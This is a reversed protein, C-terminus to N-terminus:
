GDEFLLVYHLRRLFTGDVDQRKNTALIVVGRFSEIRQLLYSVDINAYRDHADKVDTRKGFLADAEDFFLMAGAEAAAQFVRDLNKETEGIYQSLLRALDFRYLPMGVDRAVRLAAMTKGTGRGSVFLARVGTSCWATGGRQSDHSQDHRIRTILDQLAPELVPPVAWKAADEGFPGIWEVISGGAPHKTRHEL